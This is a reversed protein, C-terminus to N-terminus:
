LTALASAVLQRTEWNALEDATSRHGGKFDLAADPDALLADYVRQLIVKRDAIQHMPCDLLNGLQHSM